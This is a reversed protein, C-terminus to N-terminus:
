IPAAIAVTLIRLPLSGASLLEAIGEYSPFYRIIDTLNFASELLLNAGIAAGAALLLAAPEIIGGSYRTYRKRTKLWMPIFVALCVIEFALQIEMGNRTVLDAASSVLDEMNEMNSKRMESVVFAIGVTVGIVIQVLFALLTPYIIRWFRRPRSFGKYM